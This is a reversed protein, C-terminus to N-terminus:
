SHPAGEDTIMNAIDSGGGGGTVINPGVGTSMNAIDGGVDGGATM